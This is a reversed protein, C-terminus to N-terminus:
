KLPELPPPILAFRATRNEVTVSSVVGQKWRGTLWLAKWEEWNFEAEELTGDAYIVTARTLRLGGM